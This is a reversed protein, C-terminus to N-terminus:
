KELADIVNDAHNWPLIITQTRRQEQEGAYILYRNDKCDVLQSWYDLGKFFSSQVTKSAKIEVPYYTGGASILADLENGLNDRWFYIQPDQARNYYQKYMDTLMMNEFLHGRMYHLALQREDGIELLQCALGTDYFYLKPTKVLRKGINQWFPQLQFIIYSQELLALWAKATNVTINCDNALSSINLLQGIRGACLKIFLQFQGIDLLNTLQRVDREVYTRIYDSYWQRSQLDHEYLRPYGGKFIFQHVDQSLMDAEKLEHMSLPLLTLLAIRGALTQSIQASLVFNQSGTVIFWGPKKERDVWGQMYSLLEPVHQIEDFIAPKERAYLDLFGRPDEKAFARNDLDELSIYAYDPFTLQALTTKGSQRPGLVGVVPMKQALYRLKESLTRKIIM